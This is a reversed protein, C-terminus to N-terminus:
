ITRRLEVGYFRCIRRARQVFDSRELIEAPRSGQRALCEVTPRDGRSGTDSRRESFRAWGPPHLTRVPRSPSDRGIWHAPSLRPRRDDPSSRPPPAAATATPSPAAATATSLPLAEYRRREGGHKEVEAPQEPGGEPRRRTPGDCGENRIIRSAAPGDLALDGAVEGLAEDAERSKRLLM